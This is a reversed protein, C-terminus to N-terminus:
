DLSPATLPANVIASLGVSGLFQEWDQQVTANNPADQRMAILETLADHWIGQQALLAIRDRVTPAVNLQQALQPALEVRRITGEVTRNLSPSNSELLSFVWRYSQNVELSHRIPVGVIGATPSLTLTETAIAQQNEDLLVLEAEVSRQLTPVYFWLMPTAAITQTAIGESPLSCTNGANSVPNSGPLLAILQDSCGGRAGGSSRSQPRGQGDFGNNSTQFVLAGNRIPRSTTQHSSTTLPAAITGTSLLVISAIAGSVTTFISTRKSYTM